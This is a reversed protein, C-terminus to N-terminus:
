AKRFYLACPRLELRTGTGQVADFHAQVHYQYPLSQGVRGVNYAASGTLGHAFLAAGGDPQIQGDLSLWSPQGRVGNEGHLVGDKVQASFFLSYGFAGDPANQCTVTVSWIGDFTSAAKAPSVLAAAALLAAAAGLRRPGM